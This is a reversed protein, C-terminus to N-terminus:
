SKSIKEVYDLREYFARSKNGDDIALMIQYLTKNFDKQKEYKIDEDTSLQVNRFKFGIVTVIVTMIILFLPAFIIFPIIDKIYLYAVGLFTSASIIPNLVVAGIRAETYRRKVFTGRLTCNKGYGIM